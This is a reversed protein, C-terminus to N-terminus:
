ESSTPVFRRGRADNPVFVYASPAGDELSHSTVPSGVYWFVWGKREGRLIAAREEGGDDYSVVLSKMERRAADHAEVRSSATPPQGFGRRRAGRQFGERADEDVEEALFLTRRPAGLAALRERGERESATAYARTAPRRALTEGFRLLARFAVDIRAFNPSEDDVFADDFLLREFDDDPVVNARWLEVVFEAVGVLSADDSSRLRETARVRVADRFELSTTAAVCRAYTTAYNTQAAAAAVLRDACAGLSASHCEELAASVREVTREISDPTARNLAATFASVPDLAKTKKKTASASAVDDSADGDRRWNSYDREDDDDQSWRSPASATTTGSNTTPLVVVSKTGRTKRVGNAKPDKVREFALLACRRFSAVVSEKATKIRVPLGLAHFADCVDRLLIEKVGRRRAEPVVCLREVQATTFVFDPSSFPHYTADSDPDSQIARAAIYGVRAGSASIEVEYYVGCREPNASVYHLAGYGGESWREPSSPVLRVAAGDDLALDRDRERDRAAVFARVRDGVDDLQDAVGLTLRQIPDDPSSWRERATAVIVGDDDDDVVIRGDTQHTFVRLARAIERHWARSARDTEGADDREGDDKEARRRSQKSPFVRRAPCRAVVLNFSLNASLSSTKAPPAGRKLAIAVEIESSLARRFAMFTQAARTAESAPSAGPGARLVGVARAGNTRELEACVARVLKRVDNASKHDGRWVYVGTDDGDEDTPPTRTLTVLRTERANWGFRERSTERARAGDHAGFCILYVIDKASTTM